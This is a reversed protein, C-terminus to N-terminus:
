TKLGIDSNIAENIALIMTMFYSINRPLAWVAINDRYHKSHHLTSILLEEVSHKQVTLCHKCLVIAKNAHMRRIILLELGTVSFSLYCLCIPKINSSM